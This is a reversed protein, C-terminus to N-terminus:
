RGCPRRGGPCRRGPPWPARGQPGDQVAATLLALQAAPGLVDGAITPSPTARESARAPRISLWRGPGPGAHRGPSGAAACAMGSATTVAASRARAGPCRWRRMGPMSLSASSTRSSSAPTQADAPEAQALPASSGLGTSRAMPTGLSSARDLRRRVSPGVVLGASISRAAIATGAATARSRASLRAPGPPWTPHPRSTPRPQEAQDLCTM